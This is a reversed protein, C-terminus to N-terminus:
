DGLYLAGVALDDMHRWGRTQCDKLFSKMRRRAFAGRTSKFSVLGRLIEDFPVAEVRKSTETQQACYFSGIGDSFLAVYKYDRARVTFVETLGGGNSTDRLLLPEEVSASRFHKVEKCASEKDKLALLRRPQHM